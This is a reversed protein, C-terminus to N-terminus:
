DVIRFRNKKGADYYGKGDSSVIKLSIEHTARGLKWTPLGWQFGTRALDRSGFLAAVDQRDGGYNSPYLKGDLDIFVASAPMRSANDFAWGQVLLMASKASLEMVESQPIEAASANNLSELRATDLTGLSRLASLDLAAATKMSLAIGPMEYIEARFPTEFGSTGPGYFVLDDFPENVQRDRLLASTSELNSPLFNLPIGDPMLEPPVRATLFRGGPSSMVADVEDVRFLFRRLQGIRNLQLHVRAFLPHTSQPVKLPQGFGLAESRLLRVEGNLPQARKRLLLRTGYSSDLEYHKFIAISTAPADLLPHRGDISDWEFLLFDPARSADNLFEANWNDLFPTSATYIQFIPFPRYAIPNAAAYACESPFIGLPQSGVRALLEKPLRDPALSSRSADDLARRLTRYDLAKAAIMANRLGFHTYALHAASVRWSEQSFWIVLLIASLTPISWRPRRAFDTFLFILGVLLPLFTFLIESHGPQRVFSHKFELFLTGAGALAVAFSNQRTWLLAAILLGYAALMFLATTLERSGGGLSMATNYGSSIESSTRLYRLFSDVSPYYLFYGLLFLVPTGIGGVLAMRWARARDSFLIGLPLLLLSGIAGLGTSIKIFMLLVTLVTALGYFVPWHRESSSMGLLLLVLLAMFFDPGAYGFEVFIDAGPIACITFIALRYLPLRRYFILAALLFVFIIWIAAQFFLGEALNSGFPMPLILYGLPGYTFGVDKGFIVHKLRFLNLAVAWSADLGANAFHFRIPCVLLGLYLLLLARAVNEIAIRHQVFIGPRSAVM